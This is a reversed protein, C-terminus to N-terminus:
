RQARQEGPHVRVPVAEPEEAGFRRKGPYTAPPSDITRLTVTPPPDGKGAGPSQSQKTIGHYLLAGCYRAAETANEGPLAAPGEM